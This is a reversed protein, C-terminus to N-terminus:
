SFEKQPNYAISPINTVTTHLLAQLFSGNKADPARLHAPRAPLQLGSARRAIDQLVPTMPM